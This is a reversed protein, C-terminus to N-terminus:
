QALVADIKQCIGEFIASIEGVGPVEQFRGTSAYFAAVPATKDRYEVVRREILEQNQDDPRGSTQGRLLLRQVLTDHDVQLAVMVSISTGYKALMEDLAEAQAVTRPFGDFIFGRGSLNAKVQNEVMGIVVADPVLIGADMLKKAEQGLATGEAIESRLLDGTSIHRLGYRDILNQSQTGKGAGPPGFLVLNLMHPHTFPRPQLCTAVRAHAWHRPKRGHANPPYFYPGPGYM